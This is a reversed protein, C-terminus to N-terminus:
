LCSILLQQRLEEADQVTGKRQSEFVLASRANEKQVQFDERFIAIDLFCNLSLRWMAPILVAAILLKHRSSSAFSTRRQTIRSPSTILM